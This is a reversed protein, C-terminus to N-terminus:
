AKELANGAAWADGAFAGTLGVVDISTAAYGYASIATV